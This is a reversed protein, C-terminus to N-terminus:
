VEYVAKTIGAVYDPDHWRHVYARGAESKSLLLESSKLYGELVVEINSRDIHIFAEQLDRAMGEPVFGLDEKRIFVAVPKGMKMAEVAVSGYWGTLVQDVVLTAQEYIRLAEQHPKNEVLIVEIPYKRSLRELAPLIYHSGKGIRDTPSHLIKIKRPIQYPPSPIQDWGAICYPLFSSIPTPLFHLLDPNVAFIHHAHKSVIRIRKERDKDARGNKCIGGNCGDEHCASASVREITRYKQRADCGNYTFVMKTKPYFPLDWHHIGRSRFDILTSGYNFHFVDFQSRYKMFARLSSLFVGLPGKREWGLCVDYPYDFRPHTSVLVKSDLGLRREGQALEWAMGGVVTPLHLVRM